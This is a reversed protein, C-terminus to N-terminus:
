GAMGAKTRINEDTTKPTEKVKKMAKEMKTGDNGDKHARDSWDRTM